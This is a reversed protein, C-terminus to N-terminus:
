KACHFNTLLICINNQFSNIEKNVIIFVSHVSEIAVNVMSLDVIVHPEIHAQLVRVSQVQSQHRYSPDIHSM